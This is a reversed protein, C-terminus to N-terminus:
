RWVKPKSTIKGGPHAIKGTSTVTPLTMDRHPAFWEISEGCAKNPQVALVTAAKHGMADRSPLQVCVHLYSGNSIRCKVFHEAFRMEHAWRGLTSDVELFLPLMAFLWRWLCYVGVNMKALRDGRFLSRQDLLDKIRGIQYVSIDGKESDKLNAGDYNALAQCFRPDNLMRVAGNWGDDPNENGLPQMMMVCTLVTRAEASPRSMLSIMLLHEKKLKPRPGAIYSVPTFEDFCFGMSQEVASQLPQMLEVVRVDAAYESSSGFTSRSMTVLTLQMGDKLGCDVLLRADSRHLGGQSLLNGDSLVLSVQEPSVNVEAAVRVKLARLSEDFWFGIDYSDGALNTVKISGDSERGRGHEIELHDAAIDADFLALDTIFWIELPRGILAATKLLSQKVITIRSSADGPYNQVASNLSEEM